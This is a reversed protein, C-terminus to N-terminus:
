PSAPANVSATGADTDTGTSVVPDAAALTVVRDRGQLKAQRLADDLRQLTTQLNDGPRWDALGASLRVSVGAQLAATGLRQGALRERLRELGLLAQAHDSDVFLVVFEEGGWRGIVDTQRLADTACRAVDALVSDGVDHGHRDNIQRFHDLDLLAVALPAQGRQARKAQQDMLEAMHKQNFLGTMPDRTALTELRALAEALTGQQQVLRQRKGSIQFVTRSLVPLLLCVILADLGDRMPEFGAPQLWWLTILASALLAVAAVGAKLVEGPSLSFMGCAATLCLLTLAAHRADPWLAYAAVALVIGVLSLALARSPPAAEAPVPTDPATHEALATQHTTM